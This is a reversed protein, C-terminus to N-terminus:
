VEEFALAVWPLLDRFILSIFLLFPLRFHLNHPYPLYILISELSSTLMTTNASGDPRPDIGFIVPEQPSTKWFSSKKGFSHTAFSSSEVKHVYCPPDQVLSHLGESHKGHFDRNTLPKHRQTQLFTLPLGIVYNMGWLAVCVIKCKTLLQFPINQVWLDAWWVWNILVNNVYKYKLWFRLYRHFKQIVVVIQETNM